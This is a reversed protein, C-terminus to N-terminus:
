GNIGPMIEDLGYSNRPLEYPKEEVLPAVPEYAGLGHVRDRLDRQKLLEWALDQDRDLDQTVISKPLAEAVLSVAEVIENAEVMGYNTFQRKLEILNEISDSFVLRMATILPEIGKMRLDRVGEDEQFEIWSIRLPWNMTAAYNLIAPENYHAGPTEEIKIVHVGHKKALTVIEHALDSPKFVGSLVDVIYMRGNEVIGVAAGARKKLGCGFHWVINVEGSIPMDVQPLTAQLISEATFTVEHAGYADNMYQTMFSDYDDEFDGKLFEYSLLEPFLLEVESEAPFRGRELRKGNKTKLAARVLTKVRGPVAKEIIEGWLEFPGYRTGKYNKYGWPMLTKRNVKFNKKVKEISEPTSSNKTDVIDDPDFVDFHWGSFTKENSFAMVTAERWAVTRCPATYLGVRKEKRTICFEPFLLQFDTPEDNADKVFKDTIEGVIADALPQTATLKCIRVNPFCIIWQVSDVISMTSKFTGRPDLHLRDKVADQQEIPLGPNKRVCLEAVPEHVRDLIKDYGLLRALFLINTQCELRMTNKYVSGGTASEGFLKARDLLQQV